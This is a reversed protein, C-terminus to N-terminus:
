LSLSESYAKSPSLEIDESISENSMPWCFEQRKLDPSEIALKDSVQTSYGEEIMAGERQTGNEQGGKPHVEAHAEQFSSLLLASASFGLSEIMNAQSERVMRMKELQKQFARREPSKLESICTNLYSEEFDKDRLGRKLGLPLAKLATQSIRKTPSLEFCESKVRKKRTDPSSSLEEVMVVSFNLNGEEKQGRKRLCRNSQNTILTTPRQQKKEM